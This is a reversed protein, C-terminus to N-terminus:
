GKVALTGVFTFRSPDDMAYDVIGGPTDAVEPAIKVGARRYAGIVMESCFVGPALSTGTFKWPKGTVARFFRFAPTLEAILGGAIGAAGYIKGRSQEAARVVTKAQAPTLDNVRIVGVVSAPDTLKALPRRSVVPFTADIINGGGVYLSAHSFNSFTLKRIQKSVFSNKETSVLIDGPRLSGVDIVPLGRFPDPFMRQTSQAALGSSLEVVQPSAGAAPADHATMRAVWASGDGRPAAAQVVEAAITAALLARAEMPEVQLRSRRRRLITPM